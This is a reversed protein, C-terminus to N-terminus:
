FIKKLYRKHSGIYHKESNFYLSDTNTRLDLIPKFSQHSQFLNLSNTDKLEYRQAEDNYYNVLPLYLQTRAYFGTLLFLLLLNFKGLM